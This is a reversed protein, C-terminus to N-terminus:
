QWGRESERGPGNCAQGGGSANRHGARTSQSRESHSKINKRTSSYTHTTGFVSRTVYRRARLHSTLHHIDACARARPMSGHGAHVTRDWHLVLRQDGLSVLGALM